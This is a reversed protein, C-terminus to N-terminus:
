NDISARITKSRYRKGYLELEKERMEKEFELSVHLWHAAM